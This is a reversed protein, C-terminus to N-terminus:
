FRRNFADALNRRRSQRLADVHDFDGCSGADVSGFKDHFLRVIFRYLFRRFIYGATKKNEFFDPM